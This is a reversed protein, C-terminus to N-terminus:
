FIVYSIGPLVLNKLMECALNNSGIMLISCEELAEQGHSQWLRLQRDYKQTKKDIM